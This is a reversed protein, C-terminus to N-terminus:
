VEENNALKNLFVEADELMVSLKDQDMKNMTRYIMAMRPNKEFKPQHRKIFHWYLYNFPCAQSGTKEKVNYDCSKCYNSMKNIYSGSAAYPKSALKGDDAYLIMSSVNPLEVWEYADAYVLLYWDNVDDPNIGALLAFNGLVMLRQIHHAYANHTTDNVCQKLCNMRTEGSWYFEPLSLQADLANKGKLGPMFHWYFGRVYERWGIVQRVFGEVSNLPAQGAHYAQVAAEVTEEVNLLGSNLYFSIHSHFLWPNNMVMADQYQGFRPLRETIFTNLVELAQNRTVAFYFNKTSGLHEPFHQEVLDLVETTLDDVDFTKPAPVAVDESMSDRNQADYNWKGGIPKGAEMLYGTKKRVERYFFEMRLEKKGEAWREFFTDDVLFRNDPLVEVPYAAQSQWQKISEFLRHEGPQSVVASSLALREMAEDAQQTLSGLNHEADYKVYEVRYGDSILENAFHRMASFLFAIKLKHHKVYTAEEKVEAMLVVDSQKDIGDFSSMSRSLQDGLLLRLVAM